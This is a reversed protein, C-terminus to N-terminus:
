GGVEDVVLFDGFVCIGGGFVKACEDVLRKEQQRGEGHRREDAPGGEPGAASTHATALALGLADVLISASRALVACLAHVLAIQGGLGHAM